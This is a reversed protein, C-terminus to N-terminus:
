GVPADPDPVVTDDILDVVALEHHGDDVYAVPPVHVSSASHDELLDYQVEAAALVEDRFYRSLERPTRMDVKLGGLLESLEHEMGALTLFGPVYEPDFEVLVDVDSEPRFDSRLVSGFLSLKRIHHRRCFAALKARDIDVQVM